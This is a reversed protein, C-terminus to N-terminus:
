QMRIAAMPDIAAARRAPIYSAALGVIVFLFSVGVFAAPDTPRVRFLLAALARTTVLAGGVGLVVGFMALSLGQRLIHSLVHHRQAGLARRIGIERTRQLVSYAIVGYLGIVALLTAAGAFSGLLRMMLRLQSESHDMVADMTAVESVPQDRDIAAVQNRVTDVLSLPDGDTRVVLMTSEAPKQLCSLYIEPRPNDRGSQRVDAAIGIVETPQPDIGILVHQGIPNQGEPYEPWFVRAITESIIAVRASQLNDHPTFDRGVKLPIELTQFYGPTIRQFVAIPRDNLKVPARGSVQLGVGLWTDAMPLTLTLAASRVGRLNDIHEILGRYFRAKKEDTDYRTGGLGIKMTLLKAPQFGPNVRYLYALSEILLTASILLIISLAAQGVVLLGRPGLRFWHRARGVTGTEGSAKLVGILDPKSAAVAPMLGFLVGAAVSVTLAFVLVSGDIHIEGARPLDIFTMTRIVNLAFATMVVGLAGGLCAPLISEILLQGLIRARGAGIAARIAFERARSTARALLLGGVNACAILLVLAVAGFLMWLESRIDSVMVEKLPRVQDPSEPKADLMEPHVAAYQQHLVALEATAEQLTVSPKLRGFVSLIPSIARGEPSIVSWESPKTVWVDLRSFPFQFGAPLVGVITHPAGALTVTKGIISPDVAFRRQWLSASIMAVSPAGPQDEEPLFSRGRLATVGLIRLFNASVRAGELVEPEGGGSLAMNELGGAFAGIETYSRVSPALEQFRILTAGETVQVVRQPEPYALPKLVVAHIVSFMATSAGIGLALILVIGFSFGPNKRMRRVAQSFDQKVIAFFGSASM